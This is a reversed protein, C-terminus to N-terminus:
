LVGSAKDHEPKRAITDIASGVFRSVLLPFFRGHDVLLDFDRGLVTVGGGEDAM